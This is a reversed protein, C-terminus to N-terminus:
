PTVELDEFFRSWRRGAQVATALTRKLRATEEANRPALARRERELGSALAAVQKGMGQFARKIAAHCRKTGAAKAREFPEAVSERNAAIVDKKGWLWLNFAFPWDIDRAASVTESGDFLDADKALQPAAPAQLGISALESALKGHAGALARTLTAQVAENLDAFEGELYDELDEFADRHRLRELCSEIAECRAPIAALVRKEVRPLGWEKSNALEDALRELRRHKRELAAMRSERERAELDLQGLTREARAGAEVPIARARTIWATLQPGQESRIFEELEARLAVFDPDPEGVLEIFHFSRALLNAETLVTHVRERVEYRDRESRISGKRTVVFFVRRQADEGGARLVDLNRRDELGAAQTGMFCYLVPVRRQKVLGQATARHHPVHSDTGPTDIFAGHKLIEAPHGVHLMRVRLSVAPDRVAAFAAPLPMGATLAPPPKAFRRVHVRTALGGSAPVYNHFLHRDRCRDFTRQLAGAPDRKRLREERASGLEVVDCDAVRVIGHEIWSEVARLEQEHVRLRDTGAGPEDHLLTLSVEDLWEVGNLQTREAYEVRNVTATEVKVSTPLLRPARDDIPVGLLANVLASKGSSFMGLMAIEVRGDEVERDVDDLLALEDATLQLGEAAARCNAIARRLRRRPEAFTQGFNPADVCARTPEPERRAEPRSAARTNYTRCLAIALAHSRDEAEADGAAIARLAIEIDRLKADNPLYERAVAHEVALLESLMRLAREPDDGPLRRAGDLRLKAHRARDTRLEAVAQALRAVLGGDTADLQARRLLDLAQLLADREPGEGCADALVLPLALPHVAGPLQVECPEVASRTPQLADDHLNVIVAFPVKVRRLLALDGEAFGREHLVHLIAHAGGTGQRVAADTKTDVGLPPLDVFAVAHRRLFASPTEVTIRNHAVDVGGMAEDIAEASRVRVELEEANVTRHVRVVHHSGWRYEVPVRTPPPTALPLGVLSRVATTKGVRRAGTVAITAPPLDLKRPPWPFCAGFGSIERLVGEADLLRKM